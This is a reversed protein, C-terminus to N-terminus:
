RRRFLMEEGRTIRLVRHYPITATATEIVSRGVAIIDEACIMGEDNEEGRSVYYVRVGEMRGTWKLLNLMGRIDFRKM